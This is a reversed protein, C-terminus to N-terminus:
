KYGTYNKGLCPEEASPKMLSWLNNDEAWIVCADVDITEKEKETHTHTHTHTHTCTHTCTRSQLRLDMHNLYNQVTCWQYSVFCIQATFRTCPEFSKASNSHTDLPLFLACYNKALTLHFSHLVLAQKIHAWSFRDSSITSVKLPGHKPVFQAPISDPCQPHTSTVGPWMVLRTHLPLPM